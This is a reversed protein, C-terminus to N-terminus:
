QFLNKFKEKLEDVVSTPTDGGDTAAARDQRPAVPARPRQAAAAASSTTGDDGEGFLSNLWEEPPAEPLDGDADSSAPKSRPTVPPKKRSKKQRPATPPGAGRGGKFAGDRGLTATQEARIAAIRAAQQAITGGHDAAEMAEIQALEEATPGDDVPASAGHQMSEEIARVIDEAEQQRLLRQAAEEERELATIQELEELTIGLRAAKEEETEFFAFSAAEEGDGGDYAAAQLNLQAGALLM